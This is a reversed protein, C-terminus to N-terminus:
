VCQRKEPCPNLTARLSAITSAKKRKLEDIDKQIHTVDQAEAALFSRTKLLDYLETRISAVADLLQDIREESVAPPVKPKEEVIPGAPQILPPAKTEVVMVPACAACPATSLVQKQLAAGDQTNAAPAAHSKRYEEISKQYAVVESVKAATLEAQKRAAEANEQTRMEKLRRIDIRTRIGDRDRSFWQIKHLTTPDLSPAQKKLLAYFDPSSANFPGLLSLQSMNFFIRNLVEKYQPPINVLCMDQGADLSDALQNILDKFYPALESVYAKHPNGEYQVGRHLANKVYPDIEGYCFSSLYDRAETETINMFGRSVDHSEQSLPHTKPTSSAPITVNVGATDKLPSDLTPLPKTAVVPLHIRKFSSRGDRLSMLYGM